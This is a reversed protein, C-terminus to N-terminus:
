DIHCLQAGNRRNWENVAGQEGARFVSLDLRSLPASLESLMRSGLPM